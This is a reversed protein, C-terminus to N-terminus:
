PARRLDTRKKILGGGSQNLPPAQMHCGDQRSCEAEDM